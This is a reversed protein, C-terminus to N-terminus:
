GRRLIEVNDFMLREVEYYSFYWEFIKQNYERVVNNYERVLSNYLSADNCVNRRSSPGGDSGFKNDVCVICDTECMGKQLHILSNLYNNIQYEIDEAREKLSVIEESVSPGYNEGVYTKSSDFVEILEINTINVYEGIPGFRTTEIFCIEENNYIINGNDCVIGVLAHYDNTDGVILYIKYGLEKLISALIISKDLCNGIEEYFTEYPYRNLQTKDTGYEISQVFLSAIEVIEDDAYDSRLEVFNKAVGRMFEQNYPDEFFGLVFEKKRFYCDQSKLNDSFIYLDDYLEIDYIFKKELYNFAFVSRKSRNFDINVKKTKCFEYYDSEFSFSPDSALNLVNIDIDKKEKSVESLGSYFEEFTVNEREEFIWRGRTYNKLEEPSTFDKFFDFVMIRNYVVWTMVFAFVILFLIIVIFVYNVFNRRKIVDVELNEEM